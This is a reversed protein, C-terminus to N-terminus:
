WPIKPKFFFSKAFLIAVGRAKSSGPAQLQLSWWNSKLVPHDSRKLHTEQLMLISPRLKLVLSSVQKAKIPNNLGRCNWLIVKFKTAM